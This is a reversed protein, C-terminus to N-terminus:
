TIFQQWKPEGALNDRQYGEEILRQNRNRWEDLIYQESGAPYEHASERDDLLEYAGAADRYVLLTAHESTRTRHHYIARALFTRKAPITM